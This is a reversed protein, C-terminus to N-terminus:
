KRFEDYSSFYEGSNIKNLHYWKVEFKKPFVAEAAQDLCHQTVNITCLDLGIASNIILSVLLVTMYEKSKLPQHYIVDRSVSFFPCIHKWTLNQADM